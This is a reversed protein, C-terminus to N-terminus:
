AVAKARNHGATHRNLFLKINRVAQRIRQRNEVLALRVHGEGYEGFGIGPSLAVNAEQLLLKCFELSGAAQFPEPIPAWVFMTAPPSPVDWGAAALGEVLVDRRERYRNRTEEVCDQSGNLAATAAVQIPTFAGYDLYSKIRTLASILMRNGAAFGIRWGPMNYTKSLSSFEVAVDKAGPVQLISPPPTEFYIEAYAIDSLIFKGDM